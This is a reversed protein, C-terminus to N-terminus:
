TSEYFTVKNVNNEENEEDIYEWWDPEFSEILRDDKYVCAWASAIEKGVDKINNWDNAITINLEIKYEKHRIINFWIDELDHDDYMLYVNPTDEDLVVKGKHRVGEYTFDYVLYQWKMGDTGM